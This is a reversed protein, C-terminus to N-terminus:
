TSIPLPAPLMSLNTSISRTKTTSFEITTGLLTLFWSTSKGM